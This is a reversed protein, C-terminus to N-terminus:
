LPERPNAYYAILLAVANFLAAIPEETEWAKRKKPLLHKIATVFSAVIGAVDYRTKPEYSAFYSHIQERTLVRVTAGHVAALAIISRCLKKIRAHRRTGPGEFAELVVVPPRYEQLLKEIARLCRENKADSPERKRAVSSVGRFVLSLPGDFVAWGFGRVYPFLALAANGHPLDIYKM